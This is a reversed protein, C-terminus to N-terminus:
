AQRRFLSDHNPDREAPKFRVGALRVRLSNVYQDVAVEARSELGLLAMAAFLGAVSTASMTVVGSAMAATGTQDGLTSGVAALGVMSGAVALLAAQEGADGIRKVDADLPERVVQLLAEDLDGGGEAGHSRKLIALEHLTSESEGSLVEDADDVSMEALLDDDKQNELSASKLDATLRRYPVVGNTFALVLIAAVSFAALQDIVLGALVVGALFFCQTIWSRGERRLESDHNTTKSM